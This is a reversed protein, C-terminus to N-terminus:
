PKLEKILIETAEHSMQGVDAEHQGPSFIIPVIYSGVIGVIYRVIRMFDWEVIQGKQQYDAFFDKLRDFPLKVIRAQLQQQVKKNVMTERVLVRIQPLNDVAFQMRDQIINQLFEGFETEQTVKVGAVFENAVKPIVEDILSEIVVQLLQDKSKFQQYVTGVAVNALSAIENTSTNEFGKESFLQLSAQLVAKQKASINMENLTENFLKSVKHAM